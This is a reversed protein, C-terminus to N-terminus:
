SILSSNQKFQFKVAFGILDECCLFVSVLMQEVCIAVKKEEFCYSGNSLYVGIM